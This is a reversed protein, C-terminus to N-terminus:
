VIRKTPLTLHTYSVPEIFKIRSQPIKIPEPKIIDIFEYAANGAFDDIKVSEEGIQDRRDRIREVAKSLLGEAIKHSKM